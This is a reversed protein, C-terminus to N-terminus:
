YKYGAYFWFVSKNAFAGRGSFDAFAAGLMKGGPFFAELSGDWEGGYHARIHEAAFDHFVVTAAVNGSFVPVGFAYRARAYSDRIGNPPGTLFQEAWGQFAHLSALPTSFGIVGNGQLVEYGATGSLGAYSLGAEALYYALDFHFPNAGYRSQRAYAANLQAAVDEGLSLVSEARVGYTATSLAPAQRLDLLYDYAEIKLPPGFGTYVANFLHSNSDFRGLPSDPGFVRNVRALYAYSLTTAPLSTDVVSVADYTQEHQRWPGNGIFRADGLIIRQRGVAITLDSRNNAAAEPTIAASYNLQLRNLAAMGPDFIAPFESRGNVTDNFHGADAHVIFDGEALASFGLFEGTQYGLRARLTTAYARRQKTQLAVDEFRLRLDILATGNVLSATFDDQADAATAFCLAVVPLGSSICYKRITSPLPLL